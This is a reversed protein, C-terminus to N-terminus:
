SASVGSKTYVRPELFHSAAFLLMAVEKPCLTVISPGLVGIDMSMITGDCTMGWMYSEHEVLRVIKLCVDYYPEKAPVNKDFCPATFKFGDMAGLVQCQRLAQPVYLEMRNAQFAKCPKCNFVRLKTGFSFSKAFDDSVNSLRLIYRKDADMQDQVLLKLTKSVSLLSAAEPSLKQYYDYFDKESKEERRSEESSVVFYEPYMNSIIVEICPIPGGAISVASLPRTFLLAKTRGLREHWRCPRTSNYSLRLRLGQSDADLIAVPESQSLSLNCAQIKQGIKIKGRSVLDALPQDIRTWLSYWGDSLLLEWQRGPGSRVDVVLLCLMGSVPEDGEAIKKLVSRQARNVEREYRCVVWIYCMLM